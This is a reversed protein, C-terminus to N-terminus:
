GKEDSREEWKRGTVREWDRAFERRWLRHFQDWQQRRNEEIVVLRGTVYGVLASAVISLVNQPKM